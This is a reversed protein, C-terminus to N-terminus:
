ESRGRSSINATKFARRRVLGHATKYLVYDPNIPDFSPAPNISAPFQICSYETDSTIRNYKAFQISSVGGVNRDITLWVYEHTVVFSYIFAKIICRNHEVRNDVPFFSLDIASDTSNLPFLKGILPFAFYNEYYVLFSCGLENAYISPVIMDYADDIIYVDGRMNCKGLFYRKPTLPYNAINEYVQGRFAHINSFINNHKIGKIIHNYSLKNCAVLRGNYYKLLAFNSGLITDTEIYQFYRNNIQVLVTDGLFTVDKIQVTEPVKAIRMAYQQKDYEDPPLGTFSFTQRLISDSIAIKHTLRETFVDYVYVERKYSSFTILRDKHFLLDSGIVKNFSTDFLTDSQKTANILYRNIKGNYLALAYSIKPTGYKSELTISSNGNINYTAFIEDSWVVGKSFDQLKYTEIIVASDSRYEERMVLFIDAHNKIKTVDYLSRICNLCDDLSLAITVKYDKGFVYNPIISFISLFWATTLILQKNM